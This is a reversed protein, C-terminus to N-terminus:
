RALSAATMAPATPFCISFIAVMYLCFLIPLELNQQRLLLIFLFKNQLVSQWMAQHQLFMQVRTQVPVSYIILATLTGIFAGFLRRKQYVIVVAPITILLIRNDYWRHYVPILTLVALAGIMLLHVDPSTNTRLIATIFVAFFVLFIAYAAANYERTDPSFVITVTQLNIFMSAYTNAPRPDNIGGVELSTSINQHLISPWDASSPHMRLILGAFLFLALAGAVSAVAYRRHIGRVLLYLVILCGIQPKIALSLTMLIAGLPLYHGRRFFYFGIVLLSIASISPQGVALQVRSMALILSVLATAIWRHSRPCVSLVLGAATVFLSGNLLLWLLRAVPYRLLALPSLVLFTSPPYVPIVYPWPLLEGARGGSQFYQQNM